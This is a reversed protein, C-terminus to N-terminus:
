CSSTAPRTWRGWCRPRGGTWWAGQTAVLKSEYVADPRQESGLMKRLQAANVLVNSRSGPGCLFLTLQNPSGSAPGIDEASTVARDFECEAYTDGTYLAVSHEKM